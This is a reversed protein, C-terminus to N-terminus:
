WKKWQQWSTKEFYWDKIQLYISCYCMWQIADTILVELLSLYMQLRIQVGPEDTEVSLLSIGDCVAIITYNPAEIEIWFLKFVHLNNLSKGDLEM